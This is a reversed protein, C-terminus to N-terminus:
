EHKGKKSRRVRRKAGTGKPHTAHAHSGDAPLPRPKKENRKMFYRAVLILVALVVVTTVVQSYTTLYFGIREWNKGLYYGGGVLIANWCLASIACLITTLGFRLRSMGAFFSVVARTGTLFRNVVVVWYGYKGFWAEVTHISDVPLYKIRGREVIRLGFWEGVKYMVLFGGVSGATACLLTSMFGVHEIGVLSGAAVIMLDSPSPPFLNELFAFSFVLVLVLVPDLAHIQQLYYEV